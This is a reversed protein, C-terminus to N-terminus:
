TGFLVFLLMFGLLDLDKFRVNWYTFSDLPSSGRDIFGPENGEAIYSLFHHWIKQCITEFFLDPKMLHHSVVLPYRGGQKLTRLPAWYYSHSSSHQNLPLYLLPNQHPPSTKRLISIVRPPIPNSSFNKFLILFRRQTFILTVSCPIPKLSCNVPIWWNLLLFFLLSYCFSLFYRPLM